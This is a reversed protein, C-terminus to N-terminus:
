FARITKLKGVLIHSMISTLITSFFYIYGIYYHLPNVFKFLGNTWVKRIKYNIANSLTAIIFYSSTFKLDNISFMLNPNQFVDYACLPLAFLHNYM